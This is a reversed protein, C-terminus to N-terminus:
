GIDGLRVERVSTVFVEHFRYINLNKKLSLTCIKYELICIFKVGVTVTVLYLQKNQLHLRIIIRDTFESIEKIVIKLDYM